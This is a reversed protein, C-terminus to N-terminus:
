PVALRRLQAAFTSRTLALAPTLPLGAAALARAAYQHCQHFLHYARRARYFRSGDIVAVPEPVAITLALHDRLGRYGSEGIRLVFVDAPPQPTREAWLRDSVTVEVVAATPWLLARVAGSLGQRGELYWAQEAYGWEEFGGDALPFAIMAHWTDVSVVVTHGTEAHGLPSLTGSGACGGTLGVCALILVGSALGYRGM